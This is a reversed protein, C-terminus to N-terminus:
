HLSFCLRLIYGYEITKSCNVGVNNLTDVVAFFLIPNSSSLFLKLVTIALNFEQSTVGSWKTIARVGELIVMKAKHRLCGELYDYFPFDVVQANLGSERIVKNFTLHSNYINYCM